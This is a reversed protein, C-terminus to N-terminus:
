IYIYILYIVYAMALRELASALQEGTIGQTSAAAALSNNWETLWAKMATPEKLMALIILLILPARPQFLRPFMELVAAGDCPFMRPLVPAARAALHLAPGIELAIRSHAKCLGQQNHKPGTCYALRCECVPCFRSGIKAKGRCCHLRHGNIMCNGSCECQSDPEDCRCEVGEAHRHRYYRNLCMRLSSETPPAALPSTRTQSSDQESSAALPPTASLQSPLAPLARLLESRPALLPLPTALPAATSKLMKEALGPALRSPPYWQLMLSVVEAPLSSAAPQLSGETSPAAPIKNLSPTGSAGLTSITPGLIKQIPGANAPWTTEPDGLLEVMSSALDSDRKCPFLKAGSFLESVICGISWSDVHQGYEVSGFVLEPARYALTGLGPTCDASDGTAKYRKRQARGTILCRCSGLDGVKLEPAVHTLKIFINRPKLDRHMLSAAHLAGVGSCLQGALSRAVESAIMGMRHNLYAHLTLDCLEMGIAIWDAGQTSVAAAGSPRVMGLYAVINPHRMHDLASTERDWQEVEGEYEIRSMIKVACPEGTRVSKMAYVGGAFTGRGIFRGGDVFMEKLDDRLMQLDLAAGHQAAMTSRLVGRAPAAAAWQCSAAGLWSAREHVHYM